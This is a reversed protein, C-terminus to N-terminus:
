YAKAENSTLTVGYGNMCAKQCSWQPQRIGGLSAQYTNKPGANM